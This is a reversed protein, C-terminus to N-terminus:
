TAPFELIGEQRLEGAKIQLRSSSSLGLRGPGERSGRSAPHHECLGLRPRDAPVDGSLTLVQPRDM